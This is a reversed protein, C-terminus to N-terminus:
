RLSQASVPPRNIAWKGRDIGTFPPQISASAPVLIDVTPGEGAVATTPCQRIRFGGDGMSGQPNRVSFLGAPMVNRCAVLTTARNARGALAPWAPVSSGSAVPTSTTATPDAKRHICYTWRMGLRYTPRTEAPGAFGSRPCQLRLPPIAGAGGHRRPLLDHGRGLPKDPADFLTRGRERRDLHGAAPGILQARPSCGTNASLGTSIWRM